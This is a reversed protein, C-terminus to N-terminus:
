LIGVEDDRLDMLGYAFKTSRSLRRSWVLGLPRQTVKNGVNVQSADAPAQTYGPASRRIAFLGTRMGGCM